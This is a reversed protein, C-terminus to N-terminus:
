CCKKQLIGFLSNLKLELGDNAVAESPENVCDVNKLFGFVNM